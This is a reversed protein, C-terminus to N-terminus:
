QPRDTLKSLKTDIREMFNRIDLLSQEVRSLRQLNIVREQAMNRNYAILDEIRKDQGDLRASVSAAWWIVVVSQLIIAGILSVPVRKDLHWTEDIVIWIRRTQSVRASDLM